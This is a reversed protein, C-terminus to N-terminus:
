DFCPMVFSVQLPSFILKPRENRKKNKKTTSLHAGSSAAVVRERPQRADWLRM